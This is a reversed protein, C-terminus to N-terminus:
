QIFLHHISPNIFSLMLSHTFSHIFMGTQGGWDWATYPGIDSVWGVMTSGPRYNQTCRAPSPPSWVTDTIGLISIVHCMVHCVVKPTCWVTDIIGLISIVHCMVHGDCSMCGQTYMVCYWYHRSYFDRCMVHGDCSMCGQTYMVCYWYHRSYFDCSMDCSMCGQTYMVCYWYLRSYFDCSVDCSM